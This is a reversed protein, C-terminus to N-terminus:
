GRALIEVHTIVFVADDSDAWRLWAEAIRELEDSDSLGYEVAQEAFRSYRVRDAWLGGWWARSEPDAYTWTSSSVTVDSFGAAHAHGLLRPGIRADHGNRETM